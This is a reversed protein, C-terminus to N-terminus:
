GPGPIPRVPSGSRVGEAFANRRSWVLGISRLGREYWRELNSLDTAIPEAGELHMIANVRGPVIEGAQRVITVNLGELVAAMEGVERAADKCPVPPSLELSYPGDDPLDPVEGPAM